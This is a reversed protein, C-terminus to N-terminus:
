NVELEKGSFNERLDHWIMLIFIPLVIDTYIFIPFKFLYDFYFAGDLVYVTAQSILLSVPWVLATYPLIHRAKHFGSAYLFLAIPAVTSMLIWGLTSLILEARRIQLEEGTPNVFFFDPLTAIILWYVILMMAGIIGTVYDIENLRKVRDM